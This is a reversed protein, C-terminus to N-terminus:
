RLSAKFFAVVGENLTRHFAVRDFGKEDGCVQPAMDAMEAPCPAVFSFHGAGDVTHFEPKTPLNDRLAAIDEPTVGDGGRESRWLQVPITIARLDDADPFANLPDAVSVAKVKTDRLAGQMGVGDEKMGACVTAQGEPCPLTANKWDAVAGALLLATYGGRSFGFVGIKDADIFRRDKWDDLLHDLVRIVDSPRETLASVEGARTMDLASDGPHNIAVVLFGADALATATDRHSLYTGEFGHSIVVLPYKGEAIDCDRVAPLVFPGIRTDVPAAACPSWLAARISPKGQSSPVEVLRLGSAWAVGTQPVISLAAVFLLTSIRM